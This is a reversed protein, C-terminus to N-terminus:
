ICIFLGNTKKTIKNRKELSSPFTANVDRMKATLVKLKRSYDNTVERNCNGYENIGKSAKQTLFYKHDIVVCLVKGM